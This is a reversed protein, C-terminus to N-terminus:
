PARDVPEPVSQRALEGRPLRFWYWFLLGSAFVLLASVGFLTRYGVSVIAFGGVLSVAAYSIGPGMMFASAMTAQWRPAVLEQSFVRLPGASVVFFATASIFGLGAATWHPILALPLITVALGIMGWFIVRPNGWRGVLLPAMLAAPVSLLQAGALLAGVLTTPVALADDLYVNFFTYVSGRGAFRLAMIVAIMLFLAYPPRGAPSDPVGAASAWAKQGTGSRTQLLVFVGPMLLLAGLWLPFRYAAPDTVPVGLLGAFLAPLMGAVLSGVFAALPLLALHVSFAHNRDRPGTVGMMFPLGNVMYLSLGLHVLLSAVLLCGMRWDGALVEALPLLGSGTAMLGIGAILMNRSGWRTGLAGAPLCLTAFGVAGVANVLGVVEPGYGLRLLWLNMLVARVGDWTFGVLVAAVLFLRFDRSFLRLTQRYQSLANM